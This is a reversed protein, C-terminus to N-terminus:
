EYNYLRTFDLLDISNEFKELLETLVCPSNAYTDFEIFDSDMAIAYIEILRGVSWIPIVVEDPNNKIQTKDNVAVIFEDGDVDTIQILDASDVPLGFYEVLRKSQELTTYNNKLNKLKM